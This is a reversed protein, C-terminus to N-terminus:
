IQLRCYNVKPSMVKIVKNVIINYLRRQHRTGNALNPIKKNKKKKKCKRKNIM